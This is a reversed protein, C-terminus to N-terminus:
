FGSQQAAGLLKHNLLRDQIPVIKQIESRNEQGRVWVKFVLCSPM